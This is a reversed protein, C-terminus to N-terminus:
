LLIVFYFSLMYSSSNMFVAKLILNPVKNCKGDKNGSTHTKMHRMLQSKQGYARSCHTCKHLKQKVHVAKHAYLYSSKTFAASCQTCKYPKEGTHIRLHAVLLYNQRFEKGCIHCSHTQKVRHTTMHGKLSCMMTFSKKCLTCTYLKKEGRHTKRHCVFQYRVTFTAGCSSCEFPAKSKSGESEPCSPQPLNVMVDMLGTQDGANATDDNENTSGDALCSDTPDDESAFKLSCKISGRGSTDPPNTEDM